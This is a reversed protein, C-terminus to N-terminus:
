RNYSNPGSYDDNDFNSRRELAQKNFFIVHIQLILFFPFPTNYIFYTVIEDVNFPSFSLVRFPNKFQGFTNEEYILIVYNM